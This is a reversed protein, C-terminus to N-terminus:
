ALRIDKRIAASYFLALVGLAVALWLSVVRVGVTIALAQGGPTGLLMLLGTLVAETGGLGAPLASLAGAVMAVAYFGIALALTVQVGAAQCLLWLAAGQAAWALLTLGLWRAPQHALCAAAEVLWPLRQALRQRFALVAALAAVAGLLAVGALAAATGPAVVGHQLVWVGAPVCLLLLCLLDALREAGFVALSQALTLPKDALMLTRVAEGVNGPTPTFAYGAVYLRLGQVAGFHRQYRAMWLRWRWGRLAYNLLCLAGAQVGVWSGLPALSAGLQGGWALLAAAYLTGVAGLVLLMKKIPWHVLSPPATSSAASGVPTQHPSCDPLRDDPQDAAPKPLLPATVALPQLFDGGM